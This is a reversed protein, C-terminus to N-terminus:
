DAKDGALTTRVLTLLADLDTLQQPALSGFLQRLVHTGAEEAAALATRGTHTLKVTKRRRDEPHGTRSVLGLRELSELIQTVSRPAQGLATALEAQHLAGRGALAQLVKTRSLSLGATAMMHQDVQERLTHALTLFSLGVQEPTSATATAEYREM